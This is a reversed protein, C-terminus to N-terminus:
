NRHIWKGSFWYIWFAISTVTWTLPYSSLVTLITHSHPVAIFLWAIRLFCIGFLSIMMPIFSDGVGRIVGSLIEISIYTAWFPVLFKLIKMGDDIVEPENTFLTYCFRGFILFFVSASITFSATMLISQWMCSRLRTFKGAGYNQGAFTTVAVGMANVITWFVADIKSFAAWSAITVTGFSNIASQIIINSLGYFTAQIGTPIGIKLMKSLIQPAFELKRFRFSICDNRRHLIFLSVVMSEAQSIVTAWAVGKVGLKFVVVFVIDLVINTLVAAILIYLPTKSDGAARMIGNAMNYIFMPVMSIFFIQLYDLSLELIEEPTNTTKLVYGSCLLGALTMITGGVAALSLATHVARVTERENKAGFLQSIVVSAGSSVGVFFGVILNIYVATGGGVAALAEKGEFKGIIVADITNYLQQFLTGILIPFFFVLLSKWIKGETINNTQINTKKTSQIGNMMNTKRIM